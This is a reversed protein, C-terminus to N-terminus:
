LNYLLVVSTVVTDPVPEVILKPKVENIIKQFDAKFDNKEYSSTNRPPM